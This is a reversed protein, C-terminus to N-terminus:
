ADEVNFGDAVWADIDFADHAVEDDPIYGAAELARVAHLRHLTVFGKRGSPWFTVPDLAADPNPHRWREVTM